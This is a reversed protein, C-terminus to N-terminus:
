TKPVLPSNKEEGRISLWDLTNADTRASIPHLGRPIIGTAETNLLSSIPDYPISPASERTSASTRSLMASESPASLRAYLRMSFLEKAIETSFVFPKGGKTLESGDAARIDKTLVPVREADLQKLNEEKTENSDKSGRIEESKKDLEAMKAVAEESHIGILLFELGCPINDIVPEHWVGERENKETFFDEIDIVKNEM